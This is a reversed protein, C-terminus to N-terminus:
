RKITSLSFNILSIQAVKVVPTWDQEQLAMTRCLKAGVGILRV